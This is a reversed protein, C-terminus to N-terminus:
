YQRRLRMKAHRRILGFKSETMLQLVPISDTKRVLVDQIMSDNSLALKIETERPLEQFRIALITAYTDGSDAIAKITDETARFNMALGRLVASSDRDGKRDTFLLLEQDAPTLNLRRVIADVDFYHSWISGKNYLDSIIAQSDEISFDGAPSLGVSAYDPYDVEEIESLRNLLESWRKNSVLESLTIAKYKASARAVLDTKEAPSAQTNLGVDHSVAQATPALAPSQGKSKFRGKASRPQRSAHQILKERGADSLGDYESM